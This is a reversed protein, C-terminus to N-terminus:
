MVSNRDCTDVCVCHLCSVNVIEQLSNVYTKETQLIEEVIFACKRPWSALLREPVEIKFKSPIEEMSPARQPEQPPIYTSLYVHTYKYMLLVSVCFCVCVCVCCVCVCVCMYVTVYVCVCM